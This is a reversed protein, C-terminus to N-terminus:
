VGELLGNLREIILDKAYLYKTCQVIAWVGIISIENKRIYEVVEEQYDMPLDFELRRLLLVIKRYIGVAESITRGKLITKEVKNDRELKNIWNLIGLIYMEQNKGLLESAEKSDLIRELKEYDEFKLYKEIDERMEEFTM